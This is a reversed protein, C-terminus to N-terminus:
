KIVIINLLYSGIYMNSAQVHTTWVWQVLAYSAIYQALGVGYAWAIMHGWTWIGGGMSMNMLGEHGMVMERSMGHGGGQSWVQWREWPKRCREVCTEEKKTWMNTKTKTPIRKFHPRRKQIKKKNKPCSRHPVVHSLWWWTKQQIHFLITRYSGVMSYAINSTITNYYNNWNCKECSLM